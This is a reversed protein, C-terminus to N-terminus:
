RNPYFRRKYALGDWWNLMVKVDDGLNHWQHALLVNLLISGSLVWEVQDGRNIHKSVEGLNARAEVRIVESPLEVPRSQTVVAVFRECGQLRLHSLISRNVRPKNSACFVGVKVGFGEKGPNGIKV